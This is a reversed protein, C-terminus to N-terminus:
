SQFLFLRAQTRVTTPDGAARVGSRCRRASRASPRTTATPLTTPDDLLRILVDPRRGTTLRTLTSKGVQRAGNVLVVRTDALAERVLSEARHPVLGPSDVM